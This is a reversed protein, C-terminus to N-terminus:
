GPQHQMRAPNIALNEFLRVRDALKADADVRERMRDFLEGIEAQELPEIRNRDASILQEVGIAEALLDPTLRAPEIGTVVNRFEGNVAAPPLAHDVPPRAGPETFRANMQIAGGGRGGFVIAAGGGVEGGAAAGVAVGRAPINQDAGVANVRH